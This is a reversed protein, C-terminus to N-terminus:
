LWLFLLFSITLGPPLVLTHIFSQAGMTTMPYGARFVWDFCFRGTGLFLAGHIEHLVGDFFCALVWIWM